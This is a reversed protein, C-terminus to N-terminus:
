FLIDKGYDIEPARERLLISDIFCNIYSKGNHEKQKVSFLINFSDNHKMQLAKLIEKTKFTNKFRITAYQKEDNSYIPLFTNINLNKLKKEHKKLQKFLKEEKESNAIFVPNDYKDFKQFRIGQLSSM